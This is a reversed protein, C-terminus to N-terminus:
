ITPVKLNLLHHSLRRDWLGKQYQYHLLRDTRYPLM